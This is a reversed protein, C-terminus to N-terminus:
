LKKKGAETIWKVGRKELDKFNCARMPKCPKQKGACMFKYYFWITLFYWFAPRWRRFIEYIRSWDTAGSWYRNEQLSLTASWV